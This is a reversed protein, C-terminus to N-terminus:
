RDLRDLASRGRSLLLQVNDFRVRGEPTLNAASQALGSSEALAQELSQIAVMLDASLNGSPRAPQTQQLQELQRRLDRGVEELGALRQQRAEPAEDEPVRAYAAARDFAAGLAQDLGSAQTRYATLAIRDDDAPASGSRYFDAALFERRRLALWDQRLKGFDEIRLPSRAALRDLSVQLAGAARSAAESRSDLQLQRTLEKGAGVVADRLSAIDPAEADGLLRSEFSEIQARFPLPDIPGPATAARGATDPAVDTVAPGGRSWFDPGAMKYLVLTAGLIALLVAVFQPGKTKERVRVRRYNKAIKALAAAQREDQPSSKTKPRRPAPSKPKSSQDV